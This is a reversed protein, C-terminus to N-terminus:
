ASVKMRLKEAPFFVEVETGGSEVNRFKLHGGHLTAFDNVIRLGIGTGKEGVTGRQSPIKENSNLKTILEASISEGENRIIFYIGNQDKMTRMIITAGQPSFKIANSILNFVISNFQNRDAPITEAEGWHTTVQLKKQEIQRKNNKLCENVIQAIALEELVLKGNGAKAQSWILINKLSVLGAKAEQDLHRTLGKFEEPELDGSKMLNVLSSINVLPAKLDHGLVSFINNKLDNLEKLEEKQLQVTHYQTELEKRLAAEKKLSKSRKGYGIYLILTIILVLGLLIWLGISMIRQEHLEANQSLQNAKLLLNEANALDSEYQTKLGALENASEAMRISDAYASHTAFYNLATEFDGDERELDYLSKYSEAIMPKSNLEKAIALARQFYNEALSYAGSKSHWRGLGLNGYYLGPTIQHEKSIRVTESYAKKAGSMDGKHMLIQGVSNYVIAMGGVDGMDTRIQLALNIYKVASDMHQSGDFTLALNLYNAALGANIGERKNIVIAKRYHTEAMEADKFYERYLEGINNLILALEMYMGEREYFEKAALAYQLSKETQRANMYSLSINSILAYNQVSDASTLHSLAENGYVISAEYLSQLAKLHSMVANAVVLQKREGSQRALQLCEKLIPEAAELQQKKLFLYGENYRFNFYDKPHPETGLLSKAKVLWDEAQTFNGLDAHKALSDIAAKLEPSREAEQSYVGNIFIISLLLLLTIRMVPPNIQITFKGM